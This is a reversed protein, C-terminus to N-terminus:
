NVEDLDIVRDIAKMVGLEIACFNMFEVANPKVNNHSFNGPM